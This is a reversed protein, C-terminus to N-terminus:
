YTAQFLLRYIYIDSKNKLFFFSFLFIGLLSLIVSHAALQEADKKKRGTEETYTVGNFVLSSEFSPLLGESQITNYTPMELNMKAVFENLISKCFVTFENLTSKCFVM